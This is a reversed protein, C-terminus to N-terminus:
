EKNRNTYQKYIININFKVSYSDIEHLHPKLFNYIPVVLKYKNKM